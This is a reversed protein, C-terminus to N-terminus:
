VSRCIASVLGEKEFSKMESKAEKLFMMAKQYARAEDRERGPDPRSRNQAPGAYAEEASVTRPREIAAGKELNQCSFGSIGILRERKTLIPYGDLGNSPIQILYAANTM